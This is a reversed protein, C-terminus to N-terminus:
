GAGVIHASMDVVSRSELPAGPVLRDPDAPCPADASAAVVACSCRGTPDETTGVAARVSSLFIM